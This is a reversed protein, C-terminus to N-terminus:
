NTPFALKEAWLFLEGGLGVQPRHPWTTDADVGEKESAPDDLGEPKRHGSRDSAGSEKDILVHHFEFMCEEQWKM